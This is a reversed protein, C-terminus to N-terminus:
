EVACSRTSISSFCLDHGFGFVALNKDSMFSIIPCDGHLSCIGSHIGLDSM